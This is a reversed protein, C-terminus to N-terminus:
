SIRIVQETVRLNRDGDTCLHIRISPSSEWSIDAGFIFNEPLKLDRGIFGKDRSTLAGDEYRWRSTIKRLGDKSEM